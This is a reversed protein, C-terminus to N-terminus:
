VYYINKIYIKSFYINLKNEKIILKFNELLNIYSNEKKSKM